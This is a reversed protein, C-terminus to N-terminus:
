ELVPTLLRWLDRETLEYLVIDPKITDIDKQSYPAIGWLYTSEKFHESLFPIVNTMFSDRLVLIKPRSEDDVAKVVKPCQFYPNPCPSIIDKAEEGSKLQLTPEQEDLFSEGGVLIALDKRPNDQFSRVHNELPYGALKPFNSSLTTLIKQYVVWAGLENWHTDYKYYLQGLNKDKRLDETPDIISIESGQLYDEIQQRQSQGENAKLYDPLYEPYITQAKPAIIFAFEAGQGASSEKAKLLNSKIQALESDSFLHAHLSDLYTDESNYFLWDDQGIVVLNNPSSRFLKVQLFNGLQVLLPRYGFHDNFFDGYQKTFTKLDKFRFAPEPALNRNEALNFHSNVGYFFGVAPTLIILLFLSVLLFNM